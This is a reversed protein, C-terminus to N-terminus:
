REMGKAARALLEGLDYFKNAIWGWVGPLYVRVRQTRGRGSPMGCEPCITKDPFDTKWYSFVAPHPAECNACRPLFRVDLSPRFQGSAISHHLHEM